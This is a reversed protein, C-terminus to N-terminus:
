RTSCLAWGLGKTQVLDAAAIRALSLRRGTSDTQAPASPVGSDAAGDQVLTAHYDLEMAFRGTAEICTHAIRCIVIARQIGL